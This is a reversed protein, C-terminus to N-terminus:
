ENPENAQHIRIQGIEVIWLRGSVNEQSLGTVLQRALAAVTKIIAKGPPRLVVIGATPEPPFRLVNSFDLDLTVLCRKEKRCVDYITQDTAGGLSQDYVTSVDHGAERLVRAIELGLNEDIKFRM